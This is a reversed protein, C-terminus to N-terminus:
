HKALWDVLAQYDGPSMQEYFGNGELTKSMMNAEFPPDGKAITANPALIAEYIDGKNLRKGVGKLSPGQRREPTQLAHCSSCGFKEFVKEPPGVQKDETAAAATAAATCGFRALPKTTQGTVTAEGGLNQLFAAVALIQGPSIAKNQPPMINGFGAVLYDGPKCLSEILYDVDTYPKGTQASREAARNSARAGVAALDPGRASQGLKHCQACNAAFVGAGAEALAEAGIASGAAIEPPPRNELQPLMQGVSTYLLSVILTLAFIGIFNKM